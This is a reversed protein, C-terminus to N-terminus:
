VKNLKKLKRKIRWTLTKDEPLIIELKGIRYIHKIWYYKLKNTEIILYMRLTQPMEKFFKKNLKPNQIYLEYPTNRIFDVNNISELNYANYLRIIRFQM